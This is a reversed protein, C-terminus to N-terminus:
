IELISFNRHSRTVITRKSVLRAPLTICMLSRWIRRNPLIQNRPRSEPSEISMLDIRIEIRFRHFGGKKREAAVM